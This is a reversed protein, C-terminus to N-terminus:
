DLREIHHTIRLGAPSFGMLLANEERTKMVTVSFPFKKYCNNAIFRPHEAHPNHTCVGQADFQCGHYSCSLTGTLNDIYGTRLPGKCYPCEDIFVSYKTSTPPKWIVIREGLFIFTNIKNSDLDKIPSIISWHEYYSISANTM